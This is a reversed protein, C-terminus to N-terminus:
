IIWFSIVSILLLFVYFYFFRLRLLLFVYFYFIEIKSMSTFFRLRLCLLLFDWNSLFYICLLLLPNIMLLALMSNTLLCYYCFYSFNFYNTFPNIFYFVYFTDEFYPSNGGHCLPNLIQSCCSPDSCLHHNLRQGPM